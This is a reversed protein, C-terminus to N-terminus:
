LDSVSYLLMRERCLCFPLLATKPLLENRSPVDFLPQNPVKPGDLVAFSAAAPHHEVIDPLLLSTFEVINAFKDVLVSGLEAM